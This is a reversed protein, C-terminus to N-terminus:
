GSHRAHCCGADCCRTDVLSNDPFDFSRTVGRETIIGAVNEEKLNGPEVQGKVVVVSGVNAGAMQM